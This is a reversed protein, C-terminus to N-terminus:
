SPSEDPFSLVLRGYGAEATVNLQVKAQGFAVGPLLVFTALIAAQLLAKLAPRWRGGLGSM